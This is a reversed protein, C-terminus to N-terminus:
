KYVGYKESLMLKLKENEAELNKIITKYQKNAQKTYKFREYMKVLRKKNEELQENEAKARQLQKFYCDPNDECNFGYILENNDNSLEAYYLACDGDKCKMNCEAVNCGNIYVENM